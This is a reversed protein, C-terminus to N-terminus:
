LPVDVYGIEASRRIADSQIFSDPQPQESLSNRVGHPGDNAEQQEPLSRKSSCDGSLLAFHGVISRRLDQGDRPSGFVDVVWRLALEILCHQPTALTLRM